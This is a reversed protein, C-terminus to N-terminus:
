RADTATVLVLRPLPKSSLLGGLRADFRQAGAIIRTPLPLRARIAEYDEAPMVLVGDPYGALFAELQAEDFMEVVHRRLYFVLSPAAIKYTGVASPRAPQREIVRALHPVPKYREFDPLAWM